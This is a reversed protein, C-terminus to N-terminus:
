VISRVEYEGATTPKYSCEYLGIGVSLVPPYASPCGSCSAGPLISVHFQAGAAPEGLLDTCAIYFPTDQGAIAQELGKGTASCRRYFPDRLQFLFLDNLERIPAAGHESGMHKNIGGTLYLVGQGDSDLISMGAAFRSLPREGPVEMQVWKMSVLCKGLMFCELGKGDADIQDLDIYWLDDLSYLNSGSGELFDDILGGTFGGYVILKGSSGGTADIMSISMDRRPYPCSWDHPCDINLKAWTLSTGEMYGTFLDRSLYRTTSQMSEYVEGGFLLLVSPGSNFAFSTAAHGSRRGPLSCVGDGGCVGEKFCKHVDGGEYREADQFQCLGQVCSKECSYSSDLMIMDVRAEKHGLCRNLFPQYDKNSSRYCADMM